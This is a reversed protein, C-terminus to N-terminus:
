ERGAADRFYSEPVVCPQEEEQDEEEEVREFDDSPVPEDVLQEAMQPVRFVARQPIVDQSTTKPADIVQEPVVTDILRLVEVLQDVPQPVPADLSPVLVFTELMPEVREQPGLLDALSCAAGRQARRRVLQLAGASSSDEPGRGHQAGREGGGQGQGEESGTPSLPSHVHGPGCRDVAARTAVVLATTAAKRRQAAGM